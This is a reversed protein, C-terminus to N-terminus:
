GVLPTSLRFLGEVFFVIERLSLVTLILGIGITLPFSIIFINVTPVARAILGMVFNTLLLAVMVPSSVILGIKFIAAVQMVLGTITDASVAFQGPGFGLEIGSAAYIIAQPGGILLFIVITLDGLIRSLDTTTVGLTPDILNGVGLGMTTSALQAGLQVGTVILFPVIALLFGVAIESIIAVILAYWNPPVPAFNQAPLCVLAFLVIAPLRIPLGREGAGTGPLIMMMSAFRTILLVLTWVVDLRNALALALELSLNNGEM